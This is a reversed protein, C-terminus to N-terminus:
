FDESTDPAERLTCCGNDRWGGGEREGVGGREGRAVEVQSLPGGTVKGDKEFDSRRRLGAGKVREGGRRTRSQM